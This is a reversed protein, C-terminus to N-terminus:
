TRGEARTQASDHLISCNSSDPAMQGCREDGPLCPSALRLVQSRSDPQKMVFGLEPEEACATEEETLM